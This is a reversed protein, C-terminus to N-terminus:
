YNIKDVTEMLRCSGLGGVIKATAVEMINSFSIGGM